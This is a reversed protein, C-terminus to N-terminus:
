EVVILRYERVPSVKADSDLDRREITAPEYKTRFCKDIM